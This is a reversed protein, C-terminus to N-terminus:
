SFHSFIFLTPETTPEIGFVETYKSKVKENDMLLLVDLNVFDWGDDNDLHLIRLGFVTYDGCMGDTILTYEEGPFGCMMSEFKEDWMDIENNYPMKWGFVIYDARDVSM